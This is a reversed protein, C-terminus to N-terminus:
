QPWQLSQGPAGPSQSLGMVELPLVAGAHSQEQFEAVVNSSARTTQPSIWMSLFWLGSM